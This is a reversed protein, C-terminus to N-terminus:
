DMVEHTKLDCFVLRAVGKPHRLLLQQLWANVSLVGGADPQSHLQSTVVTVRISRANKM